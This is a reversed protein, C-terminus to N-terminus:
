AALAEVPHNGFKSAVPPSLTSGAGSLPAVTLRHPVIMTPVSRSHQVGSRKRLLELRRAREEDRIRKQVRRLSDDMEATLDGSLRLAEICNSIFAERERLLALERLEAERGSARVTGSMAEPGNWDPADPRLPAVYFTGDSEIPLAVAGVAIAMAEAATAPTGM